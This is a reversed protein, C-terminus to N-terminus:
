IQNNISDSVMEAWARLNIPGTYKFRLQIIFYNLVSKLEDCLPGHGYKQLVAVYNQNKYLPDALLQQRQESTASPGVCLSCRCLFKANEWLIKQRKQKPEMLLDMITIFLQEGKKVPRLTIYVSHGDLDTWMLNPACSHELYGKLFGSHTCIDRRNKPNPEKSLLRVRISNRNMVMGHYMVLHMLFRNHRKSKFMEKIMPIDMLMRYACYTKMWFDDDNLETEYTPLKLFARYKSKTDALNDPIEKPDSEIAQKVFTMLEDINAFIEIAKFIMRVENMVIGNMQTQQCFKLRCEYEHIPNSQCETSCFMAANCKTCPMLNTDGKLCIQCRWGYKSYVCTAFSQEAGVVKNVDIDEKAVIIRNGKANKVIQLCNAMGPIHEDAPFSLKLRDDPTQAGENIRKKCQNQRAVLKSMLNAPYGANKALEIDVMSEAFKDMRYFCASRNAYAFYFNSSGPKAYCLCENYSGLASRWDKAEFSKNGEKRKELATSESKNFSSPDISSREVCYIRNLIALHKFSFIDVYLANEKNSEKAWLM